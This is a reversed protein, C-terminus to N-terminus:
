NYNDTYTKSGSVIGSIKKEAQNVAKSIQRCVSFILTCIFDWFKSNSNFISLTRMIVVKKGNLFSAADDFAIETPKMM